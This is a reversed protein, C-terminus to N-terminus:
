KYIKYLAKTRKELYNLMLTLIKTEKNAKNNDIINLKLDIQLNHIARNTRNILEKIMNRTEKETLPINALCYNTNNHEENFEIAQKAWNRLESYARDLKKM